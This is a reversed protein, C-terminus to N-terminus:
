HEEEEEEEEDYGNEPNLEKMLQKQQEQTLKSGLFCGLIHIPNEPMEKILFCLGEALAPAVNSVLWDRQPKSFKSLLHTEEQQVIQQQANALMEKEKRKAEEAKKLEMELKEMKEKKLKNQRKLEETDRIILSPNKGFNHPKGIFKQLIQIETSQFKETNLTIARISTQQEFADFLNKEGSSNVSRYQSLRNEFEDMNGIGLMVSPDQRGRMRLFSDNAELEIFIHPWNDSEFWLAEAFGYNSPIGDLIFGQNRCPIDRIKWKLLDLLLNPSIEGNIQQSFQDYYNDENRKAESILSDVNILPLSYLNSLHSALYTKGVLPPGSILIRLPYLKHNEIFEKKTKNITAVFGLENTTKVRCLLENIARLNLSLYDILHSTLWPIILAQSPSFQQIKGDSFANSICEIIDKLKCNGNDVAMVYRDIMQGQLTSIILQALDHVHIMPIINDGKGILPLNTCSSKFNISEYYKQNWAYKFLPFLTEEGVGYPIGCSMVYVEILPNDRALKNAQIETDYQLKFSPLPKRKRFDDGTLPISPSTNTLAWTMLTSILIIKVNTTINEFCSFANIAVNPNERIDFIFINCLAFADNVSDVQEYKPIPYYNPTMFAVPKTTTGIVNYKADILASVLHRGLYSDADQVFVSPLAQVDLINEQKNENQEM